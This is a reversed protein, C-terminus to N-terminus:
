SYFLVLMFLKQVEGKKENHNTLFPIYSRTLM